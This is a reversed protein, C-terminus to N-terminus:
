LLGPSNLATSLVGLALGLVIPLWHRLGKRFQRPPRPVGVSENPLGVPSQDPIGSSSGTVAAQDPLQGQSQEQVPVHAGLLSLIEEVTTVLEARGDASRGTVNWGVAVGDAANM